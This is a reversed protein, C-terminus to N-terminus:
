NLFILAGDVLQIVITKLNDQSLEHPHLKHQLSNKSKM